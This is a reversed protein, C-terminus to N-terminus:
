AVEGEDARKARASAEAYFQDIDEVGIGELMEATGIGDEAFVDLFFRALIQIMQEDTM